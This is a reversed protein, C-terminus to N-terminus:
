RGAKQEMGRLFTQIGNRFKRIYQFFAPRPRKEEPVPVNEAKVTDAIEGASVSQCVAMTEAINGVEVTDRGKGQVASETKKGVSDNPSSGEKGDRGLAGEMIGLGFLNEDVIHPFSPQATQVGTQRTASGKGGGGGDFSVGGLLKREPLKDHNHFASNRWQVVHYEIQQENQIWHM